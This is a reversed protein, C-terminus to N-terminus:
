YNISGELTLTSRRAVLDAEGEVRAHGQATEFRGTGGIFTLTTAFTVRGPGSLVNTGSGVAFLSDGNAATFSAQTVQTGAGLNIVKDSYFAARGLHALQCTGSDIQRIFGRSVFSPPSLVAECRGKIPVGEGTRVGAINLRSTEVTGLVDTSIDGTCSTLGFLFVISPISAYRM